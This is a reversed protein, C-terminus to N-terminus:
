ERDLDQLTMQAAFLLFAVPLVLYGLVKLILAGYVFCLVLFGVALGTSVVLLALNKLCLKVFRKNM